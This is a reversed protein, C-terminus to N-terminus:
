KPLGKKWWNNAGDTPTIKVPTKEKEFALGAALAFPLNPDSSVDTDKEFHHDELFTTYTNGHGFDESGLIQELYRLNNEIGLVTTQKLAEIMRQISGERNLHFTSLKALMPDYHLSITDTEEFGTDIRIGNGTPWSLRQLTGTSPFFQNYPDEAYLRCEMAHGRPSLDTQKVGIPEGMATRIQWEVLDVGFIWETVPHEVQLRTNMELFYFKEDQDVLYEITGAGKYSVSAALKKSVEAMEKRISESLNPAPAEEIIKQHRRQISCERDGLILIEGDATGFVQVEIHRPKLLFKEMYVQDNGFAKKAESQALGFAEKLDKEQDVRRMGKGGGGARAKLLVPFGIERAKQVADDASALNNSGEMVPVGAKKAEERATVKDGMLEIAHSDPGVFVIGHDSCAKAFAANESLFGYGPHVGWIKEKQALTLIEEQNLYSEIGFAEDALYTHMTYQDAESYLAITHLGMQKATQIVRM